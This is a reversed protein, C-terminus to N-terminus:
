NHLKLSPETRNESETLKNYIREYKLAIDQIHFKQEAQKRAEKGLVTLDNFNDLGYSIKSSLQQVDGKEFILASTEDVCELNEEINSSVIIKEAMMAEILAGPLGEAYSPYIFMSAIALLQPIDKRNGLLQVYNELGLSKIKKRISKEYDGSGALLLVTDPHKKLIEPLAMVIDVQAKRYILRSVNLLVKKNEVKLNKKLEELERPQVSDFKRLDRGRYIVKIKSPPIGLATGESKKITESNSIFFDVKKSSHKDMRYAIWLKLKDVLKQNVYRLPTYSNNVFSGILPIHPFKSKMRRAIMDSRFLTSHVIAPEELEYIRTLLKVAVNYGHKKTINLSYVKIGAKELHKKYTDGTYVHVFIPTYEKLHQSIEVLSKEAGAGELTDIIFLVKKQSSYM